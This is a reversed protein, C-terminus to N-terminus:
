ATRAPPRPPEEAGAPEAARASRAAPIAPAARGATEVKSRLLQALPSPIFYVLALLLWFSAM